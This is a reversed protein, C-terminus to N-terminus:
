YPANFKIRSKHHSSEHGENRHVNQRAGIRTTCRFNASAPPQQKHLSEQNYCSNVAFKYPVQLLFLLDKNPKITQPSAQHLSLLKNHSSLFRVLQLQHNKKKFHFRMGYHGANFWHVLGACICAGELPTCFPCIDM